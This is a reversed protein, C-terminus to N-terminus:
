SRQPDCAATAAVDADLGSDAPFGVERPAAEPLEHGLEAKKFSGISGVGDAPHSRMKKLLRGAPVAAARATKV